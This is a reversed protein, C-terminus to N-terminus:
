EQLHKMAEEAAEKGRVKEGNPLEYYGGGLNRPFSDGEQKDEESVFLVVETAGEVYGEETLFQVREEDGTYQSGVPYYQGSLKCEFEQVVTAVLQKGM